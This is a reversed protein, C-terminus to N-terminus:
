DKSLYINATANALDQEVSVVETRIGYLIITRGEPPLECEFMKERVFDGPQGEIIYSATVTKFKMM